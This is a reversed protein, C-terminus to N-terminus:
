EEGVMEKYTLTLWREVLEKARAPAQGLRGEVARRLGNIFLESHAPTFFLNKLRAAARVPETELLKLERELQAALGRLGYRDVFADWAGDVLSPDALAQSVAELEKFFSARVPGPMARLGQEEILYPIVELREVRGGAIDLAVMYGSHRFFLDNEQWFAFNGLSYAIPVGSHIEIGQPVHPHHAIVASAGAEALRRLDRVVYPPPLPTHERGGHFIVLVVDCRSRLEAIQRAAVHVDLGYVGPGGGVSRCEEGEACNIVGVRVGRVEIELPKAAEGETMGAGVTKLGARQLVAITNELGAPGFDVTHNNALCAVHFPAEVLSRVTDEGGRLNPGGKPIPAGKDGLTTEVNVINLDSIALHPVLDGFIAAGGAAMMAGYSRLPAWDAAITIRLARARQQEEPSRAEPSLLGGAAQPREHSEGARWVGTRWDVQNATRTSASM